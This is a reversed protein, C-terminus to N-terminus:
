QQGDQTEGVFGADGAENWLVFFPLKEPVTEMEWLRIWPTLEEPLSEVPMGPLYVTIKADKELGNPDTTVYRVGDEISEPVQGEDAELEVATMSWTFEDVQEAQAFRGHFLCTYITGEPYDEAEEGMEADHYLGKFTGNGGITIETDWAGAGSSFTFTMGALRSLLGEEKGFLAVADWGYDKYATVNLGNATVYDRLFRERISKLPDDLANSAAFYAEELESDGGCIRLIDKLYDEGDGVQEFETVTWAEGDAALTMVGAHEGGSICTLASEEPVYNFIWFTGYVKMHTEDTSQTKHIVPAPVCVGGDDNLYLSKWQVCYAAVAAEVADNGAYSWEPLKEEASVGGLCCLALSLGLMIALVKKM